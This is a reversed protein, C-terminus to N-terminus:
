RWGEERHQGVAAGTREFLWLEFRRPHQLAPYPSFAWLVSNLTVHSSSIVTQACCRRSILWLILLLPAPKFFPADTRGGAGAGCPPSVCLLFSEGFRLSLTPHPSSSLPPCRIAGVLLLYLVPLMYSTNLFCPQLKDMLHSVGSIM